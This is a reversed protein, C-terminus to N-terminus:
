GKEHKGMESGDTSETLWVGKPAKNQGPCWDRPAKELSLRRDFYLQWHKPTFFSVKSKFQQTSLIKIICPQSEGSSQQWLKRKQCVKENSFHLDTVLFASVKNFQGLHTYHHTYHVKKSSFKRKKNDSSWSILFIILQLFFLNWVQACFKLNFFTFIPPPPPQPQTSTIGTQLSQKTRDWYRTKSMKFLVYAHRLNTPLM